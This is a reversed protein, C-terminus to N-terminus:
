AKDRKISEVINRIKEEIYLKTTGKREYEFLENAATSTRKEM